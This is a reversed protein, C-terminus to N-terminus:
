RAGLLDTRLLAFAHQDEPPGEDATALKEPTIGEYSMGAALLARYSSRNDLGCEAHIREIGWHAFVFTAALVLSRPSFRRGRFERAIWAGTGACRDGTLWMARRGVLVGSAACVVAWEAGEGRAPRERARALWRLVEGPESAPVDNYRRVEADAFIGLLREADGSAFPRLVVVGDDLVEQCLAGPM